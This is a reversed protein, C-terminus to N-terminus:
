AMLYSGPYPFHQAALHSMRSREVRLNGSHKEDHEAICHAKGREKELVILFIDAEHPQMAISIFVSDFLNACLERTSKILARWPLTRDLADEADAGDLFKLNKMFLPTEDQKTDSAIGAGVDAREAVM